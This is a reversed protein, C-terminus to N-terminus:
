DTYGLMGSDDKWTWVNDESHTFKNVSLTEVHAVVNGIEFRYHPM